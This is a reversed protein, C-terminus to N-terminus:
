DLLHGPFRSLTDTLELMLLFSLWLVGVLAVLRLLTDDERLDMFFVVVLATKIAAITMALVFNGSGLPVYAGATTLAVLVLLALFPLVYPRLAKM